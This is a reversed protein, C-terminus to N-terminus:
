LMVKNETTELQVKSVTVSLERQKEPKAKLKKSLGVTKM